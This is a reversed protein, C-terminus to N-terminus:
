SYIVRCGTLWAQGLSVGGDNPPLQKPLIAKIGRKRLSECLGDSLVRNLLCGGSLLVIDLGQKKAVFSIWATLGAVLTGHFLNAGEVPNLDLLRKLVPLFDIQNNVIHWGDSFVKPETVLAELQMAAQGEYSSFHNVNLLASAADFLRGCSNSMPTNISGKLMEILLNAQSYNSFSKIIQEQLEMAFLASAAMRWPEKAAIDGGPLPLPKLTGLRVFEVGDLLLLECGWSGGDSGYGYGDLALGLVPKTIHHEAAVSALHAHHHQIAYCPIGLKEAFQTTYFNPHMDHAVCTPEVALFNLFYELTEHYFDITDANHLSGIYQSVFAEDCRTLCFTNKLNSGVALVSPIEAPLKIRTPVFGRARRIFLPKKDVVQVVSDDARCIIDRDYSIIKDAISSLAQKAKSDSILLPNGSVNASTVILVDNSASELWDYGKLFGALAHFLLYHLPSYPLMVGFQSLGPAISESLVNSRKPLLVVPREPSNLLVQSESSLAIIKKASEINLAMLAFPKADRHKRKRLLKVTQENHADCILQYGGVSKLAVIKGATIAKVINSISDSLHPGCHMCATPQAHYRRNNPNSYDHHCADCFKFNAMATQKRDYPLKHTITLRPGCNTCNLFPYLYYRSQPDFLEHLCADCVTIDPSIIAKQCEPESEIIDFSNEHKQIPKILKEIQDIRALPPLTALLSKEFQNVQDGQIEICVGSAINNVFGTLGLENAVRYVCPRFGVGQVQGTIYFAFRENLM